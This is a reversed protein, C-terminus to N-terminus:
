HVMHLPQFFLGRILCPSGALAALKNKRDQLDHYTRQTAPVVPDAIPMNAGTLFDSLAAPAGIPTAPDIHVFTTNTERKHCGNCTGLSFNKRADNNAIQPNGKWFDPPVPANGALYPTAGPFQLPVVYNNAVIAALNTNVFNTTVNTNNTLSIPTQKTTTEALLHTASSLVFERLEWPTGIFLENTRLQNLASGNPKAGGAGHKVIPDTIAQLAANYIPTGPVMTSLTQWKQAYQRLQVCSMPPIGYELIVAFRTPQCNQMVGFVFRLEGAPATGYGPNDSLDVRNVIALLRLPAKALDLNVGGSAALWPDLILPKMNPRKPVVPGNIPQDVLWQELWKRVMVPPPMGTAAQNAMERMLSAFSWPGNPNSGAVCPNGTRTKDGVVKPDRVLLSREANINSPPLGFTGPFDFPSLVRVGRGIAGEPLRAPILQRGRFLRDTAAPAATFRRALATRENIFESPLVTVATFIGDGAREDGGAGDDRLSVPEGETEIKIIRPLDRETFRAMLRVSGGAGAPEMVVDAVQPPDRRFDRRGTPITSLVGRDLPQLPSLFSARDIQAASPSTATPETTSQQAPAPKEKTCAFALFVALAPIVFRKM